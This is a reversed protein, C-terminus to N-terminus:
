APLQTSPSGPTHICSAGAASAQAYRLISVGGGMALARLPECHSLTLRLLGTPPRTIASARTDKTDKENEGTQTDKEILDCLAEALSIHGGGTKSTLILINKQSLM